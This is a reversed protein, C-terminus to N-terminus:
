YWSRCVERGYYDYYYEACRRPPPGNAASASGVMAGTAAGAVGGLLAGEPRGSIAAGLLAGTAGGIIAGGGAAQGQPTECGALTLATALGLALGTFNRMMHKVGQISAAGRGADKVRGFDLGCYEDGLSFMSHFFMQRRSLIAVVESLSVNVKISIGSVQWTTTVTLASDRCV